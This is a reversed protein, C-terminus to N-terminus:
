NPHIPIFKYKLGAKKLDEVIFPSIAVHKINKKKQLSPLQDLSKLIDSGRWVVIALSKHRRLSGLGWLGYFIAPANRNGYPTLSHRKVFSQGALNTSIGLRCQKIRM